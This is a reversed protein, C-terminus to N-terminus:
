NINQQDRHGNSANRYLKGAAMLQRNEAQEFNGGRPCGIASERMVDLFNVFYKGVPYQSQDAKMGGRRKGVVVDEM